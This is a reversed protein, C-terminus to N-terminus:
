QKPGQKINTSKIALALEDKTLNYKGVRFLAVGPVVEEGLGYSNVHGEVRIIYHVKDSNMKRKIHAPAWYINRQTVIGACCKFGKQIGM